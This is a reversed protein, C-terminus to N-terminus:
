VVHAVNISGVGKMSKGVVVHIAISKLAAIYKDVWLLVRDPITAVVHVQNMDVIKSGCWIKILRRQAM